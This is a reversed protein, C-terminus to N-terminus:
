LTNAVGAVREVPVAVEVEGPRSAALELADGARVAQVDGEGVAVVPDALRFRDGLVAHGGLVGEVGLAAM